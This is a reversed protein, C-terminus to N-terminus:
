GQQHGSWFSPTLIETPKKKEGKLRAERRTYIKTGRGPVLGTGGPNLHLTEVVPGGPVGETLKADGSQESGKWAEWTRGPCASDARGQGKVGRGLSRRGGQKEGLWCPRQM